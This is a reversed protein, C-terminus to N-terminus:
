PCRIRNEIDEDIWRRSFLESNMAKVWREETIKMLRNEKKSTGFHLLLDQLHQIMREQRSQVSLKFSRMERAYNHLVTGFTVQMRKSM